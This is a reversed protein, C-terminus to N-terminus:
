LSFEDLFIIDESFSIDKNNLIEKDDIDSSIFLYIKFDYEVGVCYVEYSIDYKDCMKKILDFESFDFGKKILDDRNNKDFKNNEDFKELFLMCDIIDRLCEDDCWMGKINCMEGCLLEDEGYGIEFVCSVHRLMIMNNEKKKIM